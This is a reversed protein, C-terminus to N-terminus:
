AAAGIRTAHTGSQRDREPVLTWAIGMLLFFLYTVQPFAFTDFLFMSVLIAGVSAGIAFVLDRESRGTARRSSVTLGILCSLILLIVAAVGAIGGMVLEQLWQNDLYRSHQPITSAPGHGFFPEERFLKGVYAYDDTRSEISPDKSAGTFLSIVADFLDPAVVFYVGVIAVLACIGAVIFKVPQALLYIVLAVVLTVYATRSVSAPVAVLLLAAGVYAIRRTMPTAAFRSYHFAIPLLASVMVAFEIPHGATGIVRTFGDREALQTETLLTFGPPVLLTRYDINALGQVLGIVTSIAGGALVAFLVADRIRETTVTSITYLVIGFCAATTLLFRLTTAAADPPDSPSTAGHVYIVLRLALYAMMMAVAVMKPSTALSRLRVVQGDGRVAPVLLSIAVIAFMVLGLLRAPSGNGRLPGPIVAEAPLALLVFAFVILTIPLTADRRRTTAGATM